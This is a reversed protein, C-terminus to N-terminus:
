ALDYCERLSAAARLLEVFADRGLDPVDSTYDVDDNEDDNEDDSLAKIM